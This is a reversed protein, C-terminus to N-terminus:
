GSAGTIPSSGASATRCASALTRSSPTWAREQTEKKLFVHRDIAADFRALDAVTSLLGAAADLYDESPYPADLIERDGYLTYPRSLASLNKEYRDLREKGLSGAWKDRDKVISHYPVSDTMDLPDLFTEVMVIVFAKGFKKEIVETLYDFRSGDYQYSDGPTGHSTHSILHKIRVTDDQFESSYRAIPEDLDLKGQEVLQMILTAAFPKTLSAISYLTDATAPTGNRVDAFGFGGAWLVEQDRLIVASM